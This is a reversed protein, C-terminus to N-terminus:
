STANVLQHVPLAQEYVRTVAAEHSCKDVLLSLQYIADAVAYRQTDHGDESCYDECDTGGVGEWHWRGADEQELTFDGNLEFPCIDPRPILQSYNPPTLEPLSIETLEQQANAIALQETTFAKDSEYRDFDGIGEWIILNDTRRVLIYDRELQIGTPAASTTQLMPHNELSYNVQQLFDAFGRHEALNRNTQALIEDFARSM